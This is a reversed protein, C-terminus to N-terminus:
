RDLLTSVFSKHTHTHSSSSGSYGAADDMQTIKTNIRTKRVWKKGRVYLENIERKEVRASSKALKGNRERDPEQYKTKIVTEGLIRCIQM